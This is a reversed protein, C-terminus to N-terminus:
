LIFRFGFQLWEWRPCGRSLGFCQSQGFGKFPKQDPFHWNSQTGILNQVSLVRWWPGDADLNPFGTCQFAM